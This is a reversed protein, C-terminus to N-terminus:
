KVELGLGGPFNGPFTPGFGYNKVGLLIKLLDFGKNSVGQYLLSKFPDDFVCPSKDLNVVPKKTIAFDAPPDPVPM